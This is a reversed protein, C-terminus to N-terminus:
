EVLKSALHHLKHLDILARKSASLYPCCLQQKTWHSKLVVASFQGGAHGTRDVYELLVVVDHAYKDVFCIALSLQSLPFNSGVRLTSPFHTFGPKGRNWTNRAALTSEGRLRHDHGWSWVKFSCQSKKQVSILLLVPTFPRCSPLGSGSRSAQENRNREASAETLYISKQM